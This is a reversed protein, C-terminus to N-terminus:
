QRAFYYAYAFANIFKLYESKINFKIIKQELNLIIYFVTKVIKLTDCKKIM